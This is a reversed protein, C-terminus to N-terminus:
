KRGVWYGPRRRDHAVAIIRITDDAVSYLVSYPFRDIRMRRVRGCEVPASEPNRQARQVADEVAVLFAVGLSNRESAYFSLADDFEARADEHFSPTRRL